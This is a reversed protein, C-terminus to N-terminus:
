SLAYGFFSRSRWFLCSLVYLCSSFSCSLASVCKLVLTRLEVARLHGTGLTRQAQLLEEIKDFLVVDASEGLVGDIIPLRFGLLKVRLRIGQPQNFRVEQSGVVACDIVKKLIALM